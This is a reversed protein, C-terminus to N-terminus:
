GCNFFQRAGPHLNNQQEVVELSGRGNMESQGFNHIPDIPGIDRIFPDASNGSYSRTRYGCSLLQFFLYTSLSKRTQLAANERVIWMSGIINNDVFGM